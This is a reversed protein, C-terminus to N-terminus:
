LMARYESRLRHGATVKLTRLGRLFFSRIHMDNNIYHVSLAM